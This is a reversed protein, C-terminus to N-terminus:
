RWKNGVNKMVERIVDVVDLTMKEWQNNARKVGGLLRDREGTRRTSARQEPTRQSSVALNERLQGLSDQGQFDLEGSVAPSKRILGLVRRFLSSGSEQDAYWPQPSTM